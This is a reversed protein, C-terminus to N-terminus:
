RQLVRRGHGAPRGGPFCETASRDLFQRLRDATERSTGPGKLAACFSTRSRALILKSRYAASVGFPNERDSGITSLRVSALACLVDNARSQTRGHLASISEYESSTLAAFAFQIGKRYDGPPRIEGDDM